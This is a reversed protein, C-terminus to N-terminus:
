VRLAAALSDAAEYTSILLLRTSCPPCQGNSTPPPLPEAAIARRLHDAAVLWAGDMDAAEAAAAQAEPWQPYRAVLSDAIARRVFNNTADAWRYQILLREPESVRSALRNARELMQESAGDDITSNAMAAYYACMACNSDTALAAVLLRDAERADGA